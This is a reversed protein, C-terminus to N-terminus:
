PSNHTNAVGQLRLSKHEIPPEKKSLSALFKYAEDESRVVLPEAIGEM